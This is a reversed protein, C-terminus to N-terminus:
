PVQIAYQLPKAAEVGIISNSSINFNEFNMKEFFKKPSPFYIVKEFIRYYEMKLM